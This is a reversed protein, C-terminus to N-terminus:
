VAIEMITVGSSNQNNAPNLEFANADASGNRKGYLKYTRTSTSGSTKSHQSSVGIDIITGSGGYDYNRHYNEALYSSGDDDSIAIWAFNEAGSSRYVRYQLHYKFVLISSSSIPTISCNLNSLNEYSTGTSAYNVKTTAQQVQLIHGASLSSNFNNNNIGEITGNAHLTIM